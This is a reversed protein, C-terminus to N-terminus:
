SITKIPQITLFQNQIKATICTNINKHLKVMICTNIKLQKFSGVIDETKSTMRSCSESSLVQKSQSIQAQRSDYACM